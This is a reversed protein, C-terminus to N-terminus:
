DEIRFSIHPNRFASLLPVTHAIFGSRAPSLSLDKAQTPPLHLVPRHLWRVLLLPGEQPQWLLQDWRPIRHTAAASRGPRAPANVVQVKGTWPHEPRGTRPGAGQPSSETPFLFTWVTGEWLASTTPAPTLGFPCTNTTPESQKHQLGSSSHSYCFTSM